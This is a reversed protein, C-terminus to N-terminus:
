GKFPRPLVFDSAESVHVLLGFGPVHDFIQPRGQGFALGILRQLPKACRNGQELLARGFANDMLVLGGPGYGAKGTLDVPEGRFFLLLVTELFPGFFRKLIGYFPKCRQSKAANIATDNRLFSTVSFDKIVSSFIERKARFSPM